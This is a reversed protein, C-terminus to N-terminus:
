SGSLESNMFRIWDGDNIKRLHPKFQTKEMLAERFVYIWGPPGDGAETRVRDYVNGPHHDGLFTELRDLQQLIFGDVEYLEAIVSGAESRIIGPYAGLSWMEFGNISYMGACHSASLLGHNRGGKRLTGYVYVKYMLM